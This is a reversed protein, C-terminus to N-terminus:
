DRRHYSFRIPRLEHNKDTEDTGAVAGWCLVKLPLEPNPGHVLWGPHGSATETQVGVCTMISIVTQKVRRKVVASGEATVLSHLRDMFIPVPNNEFIIYSNPWYHLPKWVRPRSGRTPQSERSKFYLDGPHNLSFTHVTDRLSYVGSM